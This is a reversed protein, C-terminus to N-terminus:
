SKLPTIVRTMFDTRERLRERGGEKLAEDHGANGAQIAEAEARGPVARFATAAAKSSLM